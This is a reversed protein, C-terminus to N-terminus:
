QVLIYGMTKVDRDGGNNGNYKAANGCSNSNSPYAGAGFGIRSDCTHCDNENNTVIGIRVTNRNCFSNFGERNCNLQLAVQSGILTKWM